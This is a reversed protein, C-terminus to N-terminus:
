LRDDAGAHRDEAPVVLHQFGVARRHGHLGGQLEDVAEQGLVVEVGVSLEAQV